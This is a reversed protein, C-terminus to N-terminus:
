INFLEQRYKSPSKGSWGKFANTFNGPDKFNLIFAIDEIKIDTSKLYEKALDFRVQQVINNFGNGEDTLRRRLTRSSINFSRAVVEISPLSGQSNLLLEKVKQTMGGFSALNKDQQACRESCLKYTEDNSNPLPATVRENKIFVQYCDGSIDIPCGYFEQYKNINASFSQPFVLRAITDRRGTIKDLCVKYSALDRDALVQLCDSYDYFPTAEIITHEDDVTIKYQFYSYTLAIYKVADKMAAQLSPASLLTFGWIGYRPLTYEQGLALGLYPDETLKLLYRYFELEEKICIRNDNEYIVFPDFGVKKLTTEISIGRKELFERLIELSRVSHTLQSMRNM